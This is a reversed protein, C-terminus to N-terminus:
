PKAEAAARQRDRWMEQFTQGAPAPFDRYKTWGGALPLARFRGRRHGVNGLVRM